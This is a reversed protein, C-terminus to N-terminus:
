RAGSHALLHDIQDFSDRLRDALPGSSEADAWSMWAHRIGAFAVLTILRARSNLQKEHTALEVDDAALRRRVIGTLQDEFARM